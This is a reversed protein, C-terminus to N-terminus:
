LRLLIVDSPFFQGDTVKMATGGIVIEDGAGVDILQGFFQLPGEDEIETQSELEGAENLTAAFLGKKKETLFRGTAVYKGEITKGITSVWYNTLDTGYDRKWELTGDQRLKILEAYASTDTESGANGAALYGGDKASTVSALSFIAAATSSIKYSWIEEGAADVKLITVPAYEGEEGANEAALVVSNDPTADLSFRGMTSYLNKSVTKRWIENRESDLKLLLIRGNGSTSSDEAIGGILYGGDSMACMYFKPYFGSPPETLKYHKIDVANGDSDLQMTMLPSGKKSDSSGFILYGNEEALEEVAYGISNNGDVLEREWIIKGGADTRLAYIRGSTTGSYNGGVAIVGGDHTIRVSDIWEAVEPKGYHQIWAIQDIAPGTPASSVEAELGFLIWLLTVPIIILRRM